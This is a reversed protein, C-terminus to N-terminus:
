FSSGVFSLRGPEFDEASVVVISRQDLKEPNRGVELQGKMNMQIGGNIALIDFAIKFLVKFGKQM